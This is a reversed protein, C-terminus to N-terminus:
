IESVLIILKIIALFMSRWGASFRGRKKTWKLYGALKM